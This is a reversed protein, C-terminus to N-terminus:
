AAVAAQVGMRLPLARLGNMLDDFLREYQEDPLGAVQRCALSVLSGGEGDSRVRLPLVVTWGSVHRFCLDIESAIDDVKTEVALEGIATYAWWGERHLEIWECFGGTWLPLNEIDALFNFAASRSAALTLTLIRAQM